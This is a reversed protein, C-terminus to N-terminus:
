GVLCEYVTGNEDKFQYDNAVLDKWKAWNEDLKDCKDDFLALGDGDYTPLSDYEKALEDVTEEDSSEGCREYSLRDIYDDKGDYVWHIDNSYTEDALDISADGESWSQADDMGDPSMYVLGDNRDPNTDFTEGPYLKQIYELELNPKKETDDWKADKNFYGIGGHCSPIKQNGKKYMDLTACWQQFETDVHSELYKIIGLLIEETSKGARKLPKIVNNWLDSMENFTAGTYASWHYYIKMKDVGKDKISLVLRQGM